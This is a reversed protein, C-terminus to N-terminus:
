KLELKSFDRFTYIPVLGADEVGSVRATTVLSRMNTGFPYFLAEESVMKQAQKYIEARKAPDLEAKGAAFLKNIEPNDFNLMNDSSSDVLAAFTDPDIGMVYGGLYMDYDKNEHDNAAAMWAAQDVGALEVTVGVQKLEAQITLAQKEQAADDAVYCLKVSKPGNAVLKKAEELNKDYKEVDDSYYSNVVPLFSYGLKYFEDSTYAATMIEKRDLAKFLGTRFDKNQMADSIRNLRLYPVRGESYNTVTFDKNDKFPALQSPLAVLADVEKNQMALSATDANPIIKFVVTKIKAEGGAYNPNATFKLYQGTKYEELMYPGTGVVKGELMNIDYSNKGDFIHKPAMFVEASLMEVVSASPSPLTFLVTLDDKKEMAIPKGEVYLAPSQKNYADYTFIVDDATFPEGDSWKLGEKLKLTYTLGDASPEMSEALVPLFTGDQDIKYLPSAVMNCTMLSWRDDATFTNLTNGTDGGLSYTFVDKNAASSGETKATTGKDDAAKQSCGALVGALMMIALLLSLKRKMKREEKRTMEDHCGKAM